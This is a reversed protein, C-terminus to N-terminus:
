DRESCFFRFTHRVMFQDLMTFVVGESVTGSGGSAKPGLEMDGFLETEAARIEFRPVVSPIHLTSWIFGGGATPAEVLGIPTMYFGRPHKIDASLILSSELSARPPRPIPNIVAAGITWLATSTALVAWEGNESQMELVGALRLGGSPNSVIRGLVRYFGPSAVKGKYDVRLERLEGANTDAVLSLVAKFLTAQLGGHTVFPPGFNQKDDAFSVLAEVGARMTRENASNFYADITRRAAFYNMKENQGACVDNFFAEKPTIMPNSAMSVALDRFWGPASAPLGTMAGNDSDLSTDEM